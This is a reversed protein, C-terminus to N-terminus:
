PVEPGKAPEAGPAAIGRRDLLSGEQRYIEVFAKLYNTVAQVQAIQSALLDRQAQAVLLSTSKGLRFKEAESRAKEEQLRLTAATASVQEQSRAVELFASRVDTEILQSLNAIAERAQEHSLVARTHSARAARNIPALEGALGLVADYSGGTIDGISGGFSDAYGTKGLTVFLDLRPLLGNKTKVVDLEGRQWLVRAQNLDPRMRLALTVHDEVSDLAIAPIEPRSDLVVDRSWLNGGPPNALRMFTLKTTALASRADILDEKRLAVEAEAAPLETKALDGLKVREQAEQLQRQALELSQNVIEIQKEALIYNWYTEEIQAVLTQAFGRLEYESIQVDIRAERVAALNASRGSGQLLAQTATFALAAAYADKGGPQVIATSATSGSLGLTTGTPLFEEAGLTVATGNATYPTQGEADVRNREQTIRGTLVPDFAALQTQELTRQIQPNFREVQLSKNNELALLAAQGVTLRLPGPSPEQVPRRLSGAESTAPLGQAQERARPGIADEPSQTRIPEACSCWLCTGLLLVARAVRGCAIPSPRRVQLPGCM